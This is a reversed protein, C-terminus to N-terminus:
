SGVYINDGLMVVFDFPFTRRCDVMRNAVQYQAKQGTGSDGIVAFRVSGPKLPLYLHPAAQDLASATRALQPNASISSRLWAEAVPSPLIILIIILGALGALLYRGISERSRM